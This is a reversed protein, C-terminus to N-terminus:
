TQEGAALRLGSLFLERHEPNRFLTISRMVLPTVAGLREVTTRADDLRGMHSYCSTLGCRALPYLPLLQMSARFTAVAEEWRQEFFHAFGIGTLATGRIGRPNLRFYTHFHEIATGPEGAWLRIWGSCLWAYASSPNLEPAREILSSCAAIDDGFYALVFATRALIDPEDVAIRGNAEIDEAWDNVDTARTAPWRKASGTSHRFYENRTM